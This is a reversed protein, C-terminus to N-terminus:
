LFRKEIEVNEPFKTPEPILFPLMLELNAKTIYVDVNRALEIFERKSGREARKISDELRKLLRRSPNFLISFFAEKFMWWDNEDNGVAICDEKSFGKRSLYGRIFDGKSKLSLLERKKLKGTFKSNEIELSNGYCELIGLKRGFVESVEKFGNTILIPHYDNAKLEDITREAGNMLPLKEGVDELTEIEVGKLFELGRLIIWEIGVKKNLTGSFLKKIERERGIKKAIELAHSTPTLVGDFDFFILRM